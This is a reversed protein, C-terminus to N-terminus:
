QEWESQEYFDTMEQHLTPIDEDKLKGTGILACCAFEIAHEKAYSELEEETFVIAGEYPHGADYYHPHKAREKIKGAETM